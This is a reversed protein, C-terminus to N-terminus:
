ETDEESDGHLQISALAIAVNDAFAFVKELGTVLFVGWVSADIGCLVLRRNASILQKRIKLLKAINSSNLYNVHQFDVVVDVESNLALQDTLNSMEDTFVPDDQVEVVLIHDSWHEIGMLVRGEQDAFTRRARYRGLQTMDIVRLSLSSGGSQCRVLEM